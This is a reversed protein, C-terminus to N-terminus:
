WVFKTLNEFKEKERKDIGRNRKRQKNKDNHM